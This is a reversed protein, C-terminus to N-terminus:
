HCVQIKCVKVKWNTYNTYLGVLTSLLAICSTMYILCYPLNLHVPAWSELRLSSVRFMLEWGDLSVGEILQLLLTFPPQFFIIIHLCTFTTTSYSTNLWQLIRHATRLLSCALCTGVTSVLWSKLCLKCYNSTKMSNYDIWATKNCFLEFPILTLESLLLAMQFM